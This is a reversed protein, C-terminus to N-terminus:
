APARLRVTRRVTTTRNGRTATVELRVRDARALARRIAATATPRIRGSAVGAQPHLTRRALLRRGAFLRLTVRTANTRVRVALGRARLSRRAIAGALGVVRLAPPSAPVTGPTTPAPTTTAGTTTPGTTTPTTTTPTTTTPSGITVTRQATGSEPGVVDANDDTVRLRVVVNQAVAYSRQAVVTTADDFQQDGDLDWAFGLTQGANADSSASADFTVTEGVAAAAPATFSATPPVNESVTVTGAMGGSGHIQCHFAFRGADPFTHSFSTLGPDSQTPFAGTDSVLPHGQFSSGPAPKWTVSGGPLIRVDAPTYSCCSFAIETDAALATPTALTVLVTVAVVRRLLRM